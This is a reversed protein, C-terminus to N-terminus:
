VCKCTLYLLYLSQSKCQVMEIGRKVEELRKSHVLAWLLRMLCQQTSDFALPQKKAEEFDRECGQIYAYLLNSLLLAFSISVKAFLPFGLM